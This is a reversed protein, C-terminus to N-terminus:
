PKFIKHIREQFDAESPDNFLVHHVNEVERKLLKRKYFDLLQYVKKQLLLHVHLLNNNSVEKEFLAREEPTMKHHLYKEILQIENLSTRM